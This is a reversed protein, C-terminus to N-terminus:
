VSNEHLHAIFRFSEQRCTEQGEDGLKCHKGRQQHRVRRPTAAQWMLAYTGRCIWASFGRKYRYSTYYDTLTGLAPVARPFPLHVCAAVSHISPTPARLM